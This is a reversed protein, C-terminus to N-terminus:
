SLGLWIWEPGNGLPTHHFHFHRLHHNQRHHLVCLSGLSQPQSSHHHPIHVCPRGFSHNILNSLFNDWYSKISFRGPIQMRRIEGLNWVDGRQNTALTVVSQCMRVKLSDKLPFLGRLRIDVYIQLDKKQSMDWLVKKELTRKGRRLYAQHNRNENKLQFLIPDNSRPSGNPNSFHSYSHSPTGLDQSIECSRKDMGVFIIIARFRHKITYCSFGWIEAAVSVMAKNENTSTKRRWCFGQFQSSYFFLELRPGSNRLLPTYVIRQNPIWSIDFAGKKWKKRERLSSIGAGMSRSTPTWMTKLSHHM